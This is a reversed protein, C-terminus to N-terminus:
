FLLGFRALASRDEFQGYREQGRQLSLFRHRESRIEFGIGLRYGSTGSAVSRGSFIVEPAGALHGAFATAGLDHQYLWSLNFEPKITGWSRTFTYNSRVGLESILSRIENPRTAFGLGGAGTEVYSEEALAIYNMGGFWEVQRAQHVQSRGFEFALSRVGGDHESEALRSVLSADLYRFGRHETPGTSAIGQAYFGGDFLYTAYLSALISDTESVDFAREHLVDNYGVAFSAGAFLRAGLAFDVGAGLAYDQSRFGAQGGGDLARQGSHM